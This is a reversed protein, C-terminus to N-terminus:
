RHHWVGPGIHLEDYPNATFGDWSLGYQVAVGFRDTVQYTMPLLFEPAIQQGSAKAYDGSALEPIYVHGLFGISM